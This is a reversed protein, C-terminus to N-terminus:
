EIDTYNKFNHFMLNLNNKCFLHVYAREFYHPVESDHGLESHAEVEKLLDQYFSREHM